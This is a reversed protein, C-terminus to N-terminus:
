MCLRLPPKRVRKKALFAGELLTGNLKIEYKGSIRKLPTHLPEIRYEATPSARASATPFAGMVFSMYTPDLGQGIYGGGITDDPFCFPNERLLLVM